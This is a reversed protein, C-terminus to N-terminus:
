YLILTSLIVAELFSLILLMIMNQQYMICALFIKPKSIEWIELNQKFLMGFTDYKKMNYIRQLHFSLGLSQFLNWAALLLTAFLVISTLVILYLVKSIEQLNLTMLMLRVGAQGCQLM